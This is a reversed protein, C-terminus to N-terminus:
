EPFYLTDLGITLNLGWYLIYISLITNDYTIWYKRLAASSRGWPDSSGPGAM